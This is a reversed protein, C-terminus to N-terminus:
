YRKKAGTTVAFFNLVVFKKMEIFLVISNSNSELKYSSGNKSEIMWSKAVKIDM